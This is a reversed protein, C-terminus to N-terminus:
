DWAVAVAASASAPDEVAAAVNVAGALQSPRLRLFSQRCWDTIQDAYYIHTALDGICRQLRSLLTKECM